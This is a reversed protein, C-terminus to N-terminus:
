NLYSYACFLITNKLINGPSCIWKTSATVNLYRLPKRYDNKQSSTRSHCGHQALIAKKSMVSEKFAQQYLKGNMDMDPTTWLAFKLNWRVPCVVAIHRGWVWLSAKVLHQGPKCFCLTATTLQCDHNIWHPEFAPIRKPICLILM